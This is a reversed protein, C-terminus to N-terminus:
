ALAAVDRMAKADDVGGFCVLAAQEIAFRAARNKEAAQKSLRAAADCALTEARRADLLPLRSAAALGDDLTPYCAPLKKCLEAAAARCADGVFDPRPKAIEARIADVEALMAAAADAQKEIAAAGKPDGAASLRAAYVRLGAVARIHVDGTNGGRALQRARRRTEAAERAAQKDQETQKTFVGM